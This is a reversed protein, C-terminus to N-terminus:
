GLAAVCGVVIKRERGVSEGLIALRRQAEVPCLNCLKQLAERALVGLASRPM